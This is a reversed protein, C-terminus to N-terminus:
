TAIIETKLCTYSQWDILVHLGIPKNGYLNVRICNTIIFGSNLTFYQVFCAHESRVKISVTSVTM